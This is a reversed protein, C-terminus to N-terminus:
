NNEKRRKKIYKYHLSWKLVEGALKDIKEFILPYFPDDKLREKLLRIFEKVNEVKIYVVGNILNGKDSLNFEKM